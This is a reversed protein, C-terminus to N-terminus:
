ERKHGGGMQTKVPRQFLRLHSKGLAERGTPRERGSHPAWSCECARWTLCCAGRFVPQMPCLHSSSGKAFYGQHSAAIRKCWFENSCFLAPHLTLEYAKTNWSSSIKCADAACIWSCTLVQALNPTHSSGIKVSTFICISGQLISFRMLLNRLQSGRFGIFNLLSVRGSRASFSLKVALNLRDLICWHTALCYISVTSPLISTSM